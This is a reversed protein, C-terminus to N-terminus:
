RILLINNNLWLYAGIEWAGGHSDQDITLVGSPWSSGVKLADDYSAGLDTGIDICPSNNQLAFSSDAASIFSPDTIISNADQSKGAQYAALTSYTTADYSIYNASEPGIVNYDSVMTDTSVFYAQNSVGESDWIINNKVEGDTNELAIVYNGDCGYVTNNYIKILTDLGAPPAIDAYNIGDAGNV